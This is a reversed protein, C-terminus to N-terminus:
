AHGVPGGGEESEAHYLESATVGADELMEVIAHSVRTMSLGMKAAFDQLSMASGFHMEALMIKLADDEVFLRLGPDAIEAKSCAEDFTMGGAIGERIRGIAAEYIASEEPSYEKYEVSM